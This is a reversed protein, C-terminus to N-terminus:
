TARITVEAWGLYHDSKDTKVVESNRITFEPSYLIYDMKKGKVDTPQEDLAPTLQFTQIVRSFDKQLEPANFDGAFILPPTGLNDLFVTETDFALKQGEGEGWSYGFLHLPQLHTNAFTIGQIRAVQVYTQFLRAKKGDQFYLEFAPNPLPIHQTDEIPYRSIIADALQYSEDIHSPSRPADFVFPLGLTEALRKSVISGDKTHSEQLCIVDLDLPKLIEAFYSLDEKDYDFMDASNIIHAGGINWTAIKLSKNM